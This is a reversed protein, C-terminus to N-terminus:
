TAMKLVYFEGCDMRQYSLEKGICFACVRGSYGPIEGIVAGAKEHGLDPTSSPSAEWILIRPYLERLCPVYEWSGVLLTTLM